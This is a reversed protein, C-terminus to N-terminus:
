CQPEKVEVCHKFAEAKIGGNTNRYPTFCAESERYKRKEAECSSDKDKGVTSVPMAPSKSHSKSRHRVKSKVPAARKDEYQTASQKYQDPVSEGYHTGGKEDVWKFIEDSNAGFSVSGLIFLFVMRYLMMQGKEISHQM